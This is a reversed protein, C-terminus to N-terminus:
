RRFVLPLYIEQETKAGVATVERVALNNSEDLEAIADVSDAQVFLTYSGSALTPTLIGMDGPGITPLTTSYLLTGSIGGDRATVVVDTATVFGNNHVAISNPSVDLIDGATLTLDPLVHLATFEANNAEDAETIVEGADVFAWLADGLGALSSLDTIARTVTIQGGVAVSRTVAVTGLLTGTLPDTARLTVSFPVSATLVGTNSLRVTVTLVDSSYTTYLVDVALDPLVTALATTNNTEDTESVQGNPDATVKLTHAVAPAPVTWSTQVTTTYGGGLNPLTQVGSILSNGDYFAVQPSVVSLDGDNHLVATLTVQQGPSPNTPTITFSAFTLDRGVSHELFALDSQGAVPLNTVTYSLTPSVTITQTVFETTIKQYALYLSGDSAFAPSHQAEVDAGATLTQDAGWTGTGADYIRYTLDPGDPGMAQWVLALNGNPARNLSFGLFGAGLSGARVTQVNAIDWSGKLWVLDGGRLWLLHLTGAADYALVPTTDSIADTTLRTPTSWSAGDYTSYYLELDTTDTLVGDMDQAYVLAAQTASYVAFATEIVNQRDTLIATPTSWATGNWTATTYTMPHTATGIFENGDGTEWLAMVTGDGGASLRPAFDMLTNSTLSVPASWANGDWMSAMIELGRTFTIDLTPSITSPLTSREWILVGNGSGDFALDPSFDAQQDDTVAVPTGWSSGNWALTYIETGHGHPKGTDDYIYALLRTGDNRVALSPEPVPYINTLLVTETTTATARLRLGHQTSLSAQQTNPVSRNATFTAYGPGAYDRPIVQWAPQLGMEPSALSMVSVFCGGPYNCNVTRKFQIWLNFLILRFGYFMNIGVEKLYSPTAPVQITVYPEGGGFVQAKLWSALEVALILQGGVFATGEGKLFHLSDHDYDVKTKFDLGPTFVAQLKAVTNFWRVYKGIYKSKEATKLLPIVDAVGEILEFRANIRFNLRALDLDLSKKCLFRLNGRGGLKGEIGAKVNPPGLVFGSQGGASIYGRGTSKSRSSMSAQTPRLGFEFGGFYPVEKPVDWKAVVPFVPYKFGYKYDVLPSKTQADFYTRSGPINKTIWLVWAPTQFVTPQLATTYSRAVGGGEAPKTAWIQLLNNACLLSSIFDHGMDFTHEAGWTQGSEKFQTGNLDFYVYGDTPDGTGPEAGNWDVFVKIRNNVHPGWLYYHGGDLPYEPRVALVRPRTDVKCASFESTNGDPDTATVTVYPGVPNYLYDGFQFAASGKADTTVTVSGLFTEGEGFKSPDCQRSAFFELRFRTNPTSDLTGAVAVSTNGSQVDEIVPFNQLNNAGSDGDGQDNPTVGLPSLDIGLKGNSHISNATIKNRTGSLIRIGAGGNGAYYSYFGGSIRNGIQNGQFVNGSSGGRVEIGNGVNTSILNNKVTNNTGGDITLGNGGNGQDDNGSTGIKNDEIVNNSSSALAIGDGGNQYVDNAGITNNSSNTLIIGDGGNQQVGSSRIVNNDTNTLVIGNGKNQFFDSSQITNGDGSLIAIGDRNNTASLGRITNGGKSELLIGRGDFNLINLGKITSDGATIHLGSANDGASAGNLFAYLPCSTGMYGEIIVPDTITPLPSHVTIYPIGKDLCDISFVIKDKGPLTNAATIAERLTCENSDCTGDGPDATSNVTFTYATRPTGDTAAGEPAQRAALVPHPLSIGGRVVILVAVLGAVVITIMKKCVM